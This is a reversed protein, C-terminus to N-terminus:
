FKNSYAAKVKMPIVLPALHDWGFGLPVKLTLDVTAEFRESDNKPAFSPNEIIVHLDSIEYVLRGGEIKKGEYLGLLQNLDEMVAGDEVVQQWKKTESLGYAGSYGQRLGTYVEDYNKTVVSIVGNQTAEYVGEAIVKLRLYESVVGFLLMLVMLIILAYIPANGEESMLKKCLRQEKRKMM